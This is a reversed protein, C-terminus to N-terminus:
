QKKNSRYILTSSNEPRLVKSAMQMVQEKTVKRLREVEGNALNPNGELAAFALNM